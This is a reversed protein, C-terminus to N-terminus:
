KRKKGIQFLKISKISIDSFIMKPNGNREVHYIAENFIEIFHFANVENIYTSFKQVFAEEFEQLLAFDDNIAQRMISKRFVDIAYNLLKKQAVRGKLAIEDVWNFIGVVDKKFCLRMWEQFTKLTDIADEDLQSLHIAENFDGNSTHAVRQAKQADLQFRSQLEKAIEDEKLRKLKFQQTRSIITSLLREHDECILLFLTKDPPEELIKLLKNASAQNMVEAMWIIMVKYPAEYNKLSLKSIISQSERVSINGQKKEIDIFKLWEPLTQYPNQKLFSRWEEMFHDSVPDRKIKPTTNVPFAFHLDPHALSQYKKCSACEGCSDDASRNECNVFQAYAIAMPLKGSGKPGTFLQAHSVRGLNTSDILHKKLEDQGVVEAFRM